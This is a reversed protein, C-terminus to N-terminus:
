LDTAAAIERALRVVPPAGLAPPSAVNGREDLLYAVPTGIGDFGADGDAGQLLLRCVLGARDLSERIVRRDGAALLVIDVGVQTLTPALEALDDVILECYSCTSSWNVLLVRGGQLRTSSFRSGTEDIADFVPFPEGIALGEVGALDDGVDFTDERVGVLFGLSGVNRALAVVDASVTGVDVGFVEAIDAAIEAITGSGDFCQWVVAGSENLACTQVYQTGEAIRGLVMEREVPVAAVDPRALPTFAEDIDDATIEADVPSPTLGTV